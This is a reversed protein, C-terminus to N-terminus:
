LRIDWPGCDVETCVFIAHEWKSYHYHSQCRSFDHQITWADLKRTVLHTPCLARGRTKTTQLVCWFWKVKQFAYSEAELSGKCSLMTIIFGPGGRFIWLFLRTFFHFILRLQYSNFFVRSHERSFHLFFFFNQRDLFVFNPRVQIGFHPQWPLILHPLLVTSIKFNGHLIFSCCNLMM